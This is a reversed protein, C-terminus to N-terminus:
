LRWSIACSCLVNPRGLPNEHHVTRPVCQRVTQCDLPLMFAYFFFSFGIDWLDMEYSSM